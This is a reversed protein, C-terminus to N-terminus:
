ICFYRITEDQFCYEFNLWENNLICTINMRNYKFSLLCCTYNFHAYEVCVSGHIKSILSASM